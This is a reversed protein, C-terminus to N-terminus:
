VVRLLIRRKKRVAITAVQFTSVGPNLHMKLMEVYSIRSDLVLDRAKM